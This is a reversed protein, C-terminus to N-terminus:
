FWGNPYYFGNAIEEETLYGKLGNTDWVQFRDDECAMLSFMHWGGQQSVEDNRLEMSVIVVGGENIWERIQNPTLTTSSHDKNHHHKEIADSIPKLATDAVGFNAAVGGAKQHENFLTEPSWLGWGLLYNVAGAIAAYVCHSLRGQLVEPYEVFSGTREFWRM